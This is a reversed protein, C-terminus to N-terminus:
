SDILQQNPIEFGTDGNLDDISNPNCYTLFENSSFTIASPGSSDMLDFTVKIWGASVGNSCAIYKDSISWPGMCGSDYDGLKYITDNTFAIVM